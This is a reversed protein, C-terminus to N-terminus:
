LRDAGQLAFLTHADQQDFLINALCELHRISHHHHLRALEDQLGLRVLEAVVSPEHLKVLRMGVHREMYGGHTSSLSGFHDVETAGQRFRSRFDLVPLSRASSVPLASWSGSRNGCRAIIVTTLHARM